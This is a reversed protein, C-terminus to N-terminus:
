LEEKVVEGTLVKKAEELWSELQKKQVKTFKYQAQQKCLMDYNMPEQVSSASGEALNKVIDLYAEKDMQAFTEVHRTDGDEEGVPADDVKPKDPLTEEEMKQVQLKEKVEVAIESTEQNKQLAIAETPIKLMRQVSFIVQDIYAQKNVMGRESLIKVISQTAEEFLKGLDSHIMYTKPRGQKDKEEGKLREAQMYRGIKGQKEEIKKIITLNEAIIDELSMIVDDLRAILDTLEGILLDFAADTQNGFVGVGLAAIKIIKKSYHNIMKDETLTLETIKKLLDQQDIERGSALKRYILDFQINQKASGCHKLMPQLMALYAITMTQKDNTHLEGLQINM